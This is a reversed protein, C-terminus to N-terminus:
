LELLDGMTSRHDPMIAMTYGNVCMGRKNIDVNTKEDKENRFLAPVLHIHPFPQVMAIIDSWLDVTVENDHSTCTLGQYTIGCRSNIESRDCNSHYLKVEYVAKALMRGVFEFLTLHTEQIYSTPSPYM